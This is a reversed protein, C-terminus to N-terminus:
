PFSERWLDREPSYLSSRRLRSERNESRFLIEQSTERLFTFLHSEGFVESRLPRKWFLLPIVRESLSSERLFLHSEWFSIVRQKKAASTERPFTFLHSEGFVESRLPREWSLLSIVRDSLSSERRLGWVESTEKLLAFHYNEWFSVVRKKKAETTEKLLTFVHGEWFSCGIGSLTVNEFAKRWRQVARKRSSSVRFPWRFVFRFGRHDHCTEKWVAWKFLSKWTINTMEKRSMQFSVHAKVM